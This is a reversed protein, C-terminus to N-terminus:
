AFIFFTNTYSYVYTHLWYKYYLSYVDELEGKQAKDYLEELANFVETFYKERSILPINSKSVLNIAKIM